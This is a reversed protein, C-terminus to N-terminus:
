EAPAKPPMDEIVVTFGQKEVFGLLRDMGKGVLVDVGHGIGIIAEAKPDFPVTWQGSLPNKCNIRGSIIKGKLDITVSEPCLKEIAIRVDSKSADRAMGPSSLAVVLAASAAIARPFMNM